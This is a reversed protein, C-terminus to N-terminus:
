RLRIYFAQVILVYFLPMNYLTEVCLTVEHETAYIEARLFTFIESAGALNRGLEKTAEAKVLEGGYM